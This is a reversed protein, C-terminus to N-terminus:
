GRNFPKKEADEATLIEEANQCRPCYHASRGSLVLRRIATRCRKCPEGERGYVRHLNQFAGTKGNADRYNRLTSGHHRIAARLVQKIARNLRAVQQATLENAATLPSIGAAFLAEDAYINGIGAILTQDLLATKIPRRTRSLRAFLEGASLSLPEPGMGEDCADATGLWRVWGFRRPDCFRLQCRPRSRVDVLLHTHKQLPAAPPSLTLQGTMGLHVFFRQGNDLTFVIRKGRRTIDDIRRGPLLAALDTGAPEVVDRRALTVAMITADLLGPRLTNVVTQVEPLEPM